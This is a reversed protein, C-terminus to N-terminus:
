QGTEADPAEMQDSRRWILQHCRSGYPLFSWDLKEVLIYEMGLTTHRGDRKTDEHNHVRTGQAQFINSSMIQKQDEQERNPNNHHKSRSGRQDWQCVVLYIASEFVNCNFSGDERFELLQINTIWNAIPITFWISARWQRRCSLWTRLCRGRSDERANFRWNLFHISV